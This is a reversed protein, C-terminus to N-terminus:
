TEARLGAIRVKTERPKKLGELFIDPCNRLDPCPWKREYGKWNM